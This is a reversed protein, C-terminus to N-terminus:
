ATVAEELPGGIFPKTDGPFFVALTKMEKRDFVDRSFETSIGWAARALAAGLDRHWFEGVYRDARLVRIEYRAHRRHGNV